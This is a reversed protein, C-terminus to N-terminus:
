TKIFSSNEPSIELFHEFIFNESLRDQLLQSKGHPHVAMVCSIAEKQLEPLMSFVGSYFSHKNIYKRLTVKFKQRKM